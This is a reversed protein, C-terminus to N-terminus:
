ETVLRIDSRKAVNEITKGYSANNMLKYFNRRVEDTKFQKRKETNNRIYPELYLSATFSFGRHIRVLKMGCDLYFRLLHGHVVYTRKPLFSCVLKRSFPCAAGFYKASLQYHKEGTIKADINMNEPALPYDDDRDHLEPPYVLDVAFIYHRERDYWHDRSPKDQFAAFAENCDESSMWEYDDDPLPQSMAWGYLNNADVYMIYSSPKTPDYLSGM